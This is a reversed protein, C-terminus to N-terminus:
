DLGELHLLHVQGTRDGVMLTRENIAVACGTLESDATFAAIEQRSQLDWVYLDQDYYRRTVAYRSDLTVADVEHIESFTNITRLFEGSALRWLVMGGRESSAVALRADPTIAVSILPRGCAGERLLRGTDLDWLRLTSDASVSVAGNGDPTIAVATVYSRHGELKYVMKRTKLNWVKLTHDRSSSIARRGDQSMAIATPIPGAYDLNRILKGNKLNWLRLTHGATNSLARRGDRTVVVVRVAHLAFRVKLTRLLQGGHIARSEICGDEYGFVVLREDPTFAVASVPVQSRALTPSDRTAHLDWVRLMGYQHGSAAFRGDPAIAVSFPTDAYSALNRIIEGSDLDWIALLFHSTTSLASRGDPTVAVGRSGGSHDDITRLISANELNWVRLSRDDSCSIIRDGDRTVVVSNVADFHGEFTRISQGSDLDWLRLTKDSSASVACRGDPTIAVSNVSGAHGQFVNLSDGTELDWLRLMRDKSGSVAHRGNPMAAVAVVPGSHGKLTRVMQGSKLNWVKLTHDGLATIGYGSPTTAAALVSHRERFTWFTRGSDLDWLRVSGSESGALAIRGDWTIAIAFVAGTDDNQIAYRLAGDASALSPTLPRLWPFGKFKSAETRLRDVSPHLNQPLRGLLQSPLQRKDRILVNASLRLVSQLLRLDAEQSLYDYDAILTNTDTDDLKTQIWDYALLLRRLRESQGAKKLHWALHRLGYPDCAQWKGQFRQLYFDALAQHQLGPPTHYPNPQQEGNFEYAPLSLFDAMSHHYLRYTASEGSSEVFQYVCHLNAAVEAQQNTWEGLLGLPVEAAAVSLRGLLPQFRERWANPGADRVLRKLSDHYLAHLGTPLTTLDCVNRVGQAMENLLWHIYLFNGEAAVVLAERHDPSLGPVERFGGDDDRGDYHCRYRELISFPSFNEFEASRDCNGPLLSLLHRQELRVRSANDDFSRRRRDRGSDHRGVEHGL